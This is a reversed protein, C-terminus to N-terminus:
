DNIVKKYRPAVEEQAFIIELEQLMQKSINIRM